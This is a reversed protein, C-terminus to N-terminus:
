GRVQKNKCNFLGSRNSIYKAPITNRCIAIGVKLDETAKFFKLKSILVQPYSKFLHLTDVRMLDSKWIRSLSEPLPQSKAVFSIKLLHECNLPRKDAAAAKLHLDPQRLGKLVLSKFWLILQKSIIHLYVQEM